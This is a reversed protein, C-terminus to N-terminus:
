KNIIYDIEPTEELLGILNDELKFKKDRSIMDLSINKDNNNSIVTIKLHCNGNDLDKFKKDLNEVTEKKLDELNIKLHLEKVMNDRVKSLLSIDDVKYEFEDSNNWKNKIKGRLFLFWGEEFFNKYKVYDDSFFLFNYSDSFDEIVVSGYPKGNKSIRHEVSTVIGATYINSKGNINNLDKINRFNSNCLNKIEFSYKDLPHGSVYIGLLDKEIKLKEIETFPEIEPVQPLALSTEESNEFLFTQKTEKQKQLKNSYVIIKEILSSEKENSYIYQKRNLIWKAPSSSRLPSRRKVM